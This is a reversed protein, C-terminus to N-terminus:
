AALTAYISLTRGEGGGGRRHPVPSRAVPNIPKDPATPQECSAPLPLGVDEDAGDEVARLLGPEAGGPAM